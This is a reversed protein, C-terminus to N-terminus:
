SAVGQYEHEGAHSCKPCKAGPPSATKSLHTHYLRDVAFYISSGCGGCILAINLKKNYPKGHYESIARHMSAGYGTANVIGMLEDLTRKWDEQSMM